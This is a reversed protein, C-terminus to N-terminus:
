TLVQHLIDPTQQFDQDILRRSFEVYNFVAEYPYNAQLLKVAQSDLHSLRYSIVLIADEYFSTQQYAFGRNHKLGCVACFM